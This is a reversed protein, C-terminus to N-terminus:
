ALTQAAPQEKAERARALGRERGISAPRQDSVVLVDPGVLHLPCMKSKRTQVRTWFPFAHASNVKYPQKYVMIIKIGVCLHM